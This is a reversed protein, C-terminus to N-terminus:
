ILTMFGKRLHDFLFCVNYAIYNYSTPNEWIQNLTYGLGTNKNSLLSDPVINLTKDVSAADYYTYQTGDDVKYITWWEVVDGDENLCNISRCCNQLWVFLSVTLLCSGTTM